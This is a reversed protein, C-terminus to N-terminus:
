ELEMWKEYADALEAQYKENEETLEALYQHNTLNAEDCMKLENESIANELKAIM